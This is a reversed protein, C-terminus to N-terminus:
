IKKYFKVLYTCKEEKKIDGLKTQRDKRIIM